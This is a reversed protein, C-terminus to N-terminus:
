SWRKQRVPRGFDTTPGVQAFIGPFLASPAPAQARRTPGSGPDTKSRSRRPQNAPRLAGSAAGPVTTPHNRPTSPSLGSGLGEAPAPPPRVAVIGMLRNSAALAAPTFTPAKKRSVEPVDEQPVGFRSERGSSGSWVGPLSAKRGLDPGPSVFGVFLQTPVPLAPRYEPRPIPIVSRNGRVRCRQEPTGSAVCRFWRGAVCRPRLSPDVDFEM